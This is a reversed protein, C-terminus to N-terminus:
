SDSAASVARLRGSADELMRRLESLGRRPARGSRQTLEEIQELARANFDLGVLSGKADNLAISDRLSLLADDVRDVDLLVEAYAATTRALGTADGIRQQREAAKALYRAASDHEGALRHLRATTEWVRAQERPRGLQLYIQEARAASRLAMQVAEAERGSCIGAHLPMRALLHETEALEELPPIADSERAALDAFLQRSRDLLHVAQVPDGFRLNLAAQDNLLRAATLADGTTMLTRSAEVLGELAGQLVAQDGLDYAIGARVGAVEGLLAPPPSEGLAERAAEIHRLASTLSGGGGGRGSGLWGIRAEAISLRATLHTRDALASVRSVLQRASAVAEQSARLDGEQLAQAAADLYASAAQAVRGARQLHAAARALQEASIPAHGQSGVVPETSSPPLAEGEAGPASAATPEFLSAFGAALGAGDTVDEPAAASVPAPVRPPAIEKEPVPEAVLADAIRAHWAARLSPLVSERLGDAVSAHLVFRGKGHDVIPAGRDAAQQLAELVALPALGLLESLTAVDCHEDLVAAARLVRVIEAPLTRWDWQPLPPVPQEAPAKRSAPREMVIGGAGEVVPALGALHGDGGVHLVLPLALWGPQSLLRELAAISADSANELSQFLVASPHNSRAALDNCAALFRVEMPVMENEGLLRRAAGARHYASAPGPPTDGLTERLRRSAVALPERAIAADRCDIRLVLWEPPPDPVPGRVLVHRGSSVEGWIDRELRESM